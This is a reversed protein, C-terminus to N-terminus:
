KELGISREIAKAALTTGIKTAVDLAWNGANKLHELAKLGDDKKAEIEAKAVEGVQAFQEPETAEALMASRLQTLEQVLRPLDLGQDWGKQMTANQDFNHSGTAVNGVNGYFHQNIVSPHTGPETQSSLYGQYLSKGRGKLTVIAIKVDSTMPGDEWDVAVAGREELWEIADNIDYADEIGSIEQLEANDFEARDKEIMISLLQWANREIPNQAKHHTPSMAIAGPQQITKQSQLAQDILPLSKLLLRLNDLYAKLIRHQDPKQRSRPPTRPGVVAVMSFGAAYIHMAAYSFKQSYEETNFTHRLVEITYGRWQEIKEETSAIAQPNGLHTEIAEGEAIQQEIRATADERSVMLKAPPLKNNSNPTTRRALSM